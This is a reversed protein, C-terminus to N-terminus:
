RKDAVLTYLAPTENTKHDPNPETTERKPSDRISVQLPISMRLWSSLFRVAGPLIIKGSPVRPDTRLEQTRENIKVSDEGDGSLKLCACFVKLVNIAAEHLPELM